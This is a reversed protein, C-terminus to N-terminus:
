VTWVQVTQDLLNEDILAEVAARAADRRNIRRKAMETSTASSTGSGKNTGDGHYKLELSEQVFNDDYRSMQLIVHTLSPFDERVIKEGQRKLGNFEGFPTEFNGLADPATSVLVFNAPGISSANTDYYEAATGGELRRSKRLAEQKSLKLGGLVNILGEIEVRGKTPDAVARFLFALNLSAIARPRNGDFDTACWIVCDVGDTITRCQQPDLLEVQVVRLKGLNYDKMYDDVYEFYADRNDAGSWAPGITGRGDEAGVEYSLRGYGRTTADGVYHVAAVVEKVEPHQRLLHRTVMSGLRGNAGVVLVTKNKLPPCTRSSESLPTTMYESNRDNSMPKERGALSQEMNSIQERLIKAKELLRKVEDQKEEEEEEKAQRTKNDQQQAEKSKNPRKDEEEQQQQQQGEENKNNINEDKDNGSNDDDTADYL